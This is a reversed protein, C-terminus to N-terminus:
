EDSQIETVIVLVTALFYIVKFFTFLGEVNRRAVEQACSRRQEVRSGGVVSGFVAGDAQM